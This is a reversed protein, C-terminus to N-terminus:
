VLGARYWSCMTAQNIRSSNHPSLSTVRASLTQHLFYHLICACVALALVVLYRMPLWSSSPSPLAHLSVLSDQPSPPITCLVHSANRVAQVVKDRAAGVMHKLSILSADRLAAVSAEYKTQKDIQHSTICITDLEDLALSLHQEAKRCIGSVMRCDLLNSFVLVFGKLLTM